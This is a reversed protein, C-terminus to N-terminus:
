DHRLVDLAPQRSASLAPLWTAAIAFIPPIAALTLMTNGDPTSGTINQYLLYGGIIGLISALIGILFAKSVFLGLITINKVGLAKFIGIEEKRHRVNLICLIVLTIFAGITILPVLIDRFKDLSARSEAREATIKEIDKEGNALIQKGIIDAQASTQNRATARALAKSGVEIIQIDPLILLLEKKITGVRDLSACNCGLCKISSIKGELNFMKQMEDLHIWATVDDRFDRSPYTKAVEYKKGNITVFDGVKIGKNHHLAHGLFVTGPKIPQMIPKQSRHIMPVQGAVGILLINKDQEQWKVKRALQPLLHNVTVVQSDALKKAYSEPMTTEAYGRAKIDAIDENKPFLYVNFGLGKMSKRIDNEMKKLEKTTAAHHKDKEQQTQERSQEIRKITEDDHNKILATAVVAVLLSLTIAIVALFFNEKRHKIEKFVLSIPSM